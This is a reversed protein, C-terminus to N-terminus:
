HREGPERELNSHSLRHIAHYLMISVGNRAEMKQIIKEYFMMKLCENKNSMCMYRM